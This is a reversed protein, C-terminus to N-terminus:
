PSVRRKRSIPFLRALTRIQSSAFATLRKEQFRKRFSHYKRDMAMIHRELKRLRSDTNVRTFNGFDYQIASDDMIRGHFARYLDSYIVKVAYNLRGERRLRRVNVFFWTSELVRLKRLRAARVALDHDEALRVSEDFGGIREFLRRSILICFGPAHPYPSHQDMLLVLNAAKHLVKDLFLNSLPKMQCTAIDLFYEQMEAYAKSLFTRPLKVDADLFFLFDGGAKAAGRNRGVAPSGGRVVRAGHSRAVKVTDDTSRADAVIVEFDRFDQKQLSRLLIPLCKAENLAPIIVSIKM